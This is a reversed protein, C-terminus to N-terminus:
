ITLYSLFYFGSAERNPVDKGSTIDFCPISTFSRLWGDAGRLSAERSQVWATPNKCYNFSSVVDDCLYFLAYQLDRSVVVLLTKSEKLFM